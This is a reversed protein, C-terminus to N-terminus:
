RRLIRNRDWNRLMRSRGFRSTTKTTKTIKPAKELLDLVKQFDLIKILNSPLIEPTINLRFLCEFYQTRPDNMM